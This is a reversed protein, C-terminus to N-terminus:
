WGETNAYLDLGGALAALWETAGAVCGTIRQVAPWHAAADDYMRRLLRYRQERDAVAQLRAVLGHLVVLHHDFTERPGPAPLGGLQRVLASNATGLRFAENPLLSGLLGRLTPRQYWGGGTADPDRPGYDAYSCVRQRQDWGSGVTAAGAAVAPLAALDGHSIHVPANESLARTSRCLGHVEEPVAPVPLTTATRVVSLFWGGPALADLAGVHADLDTGSAWFSTTGAISLWCDPDRRIAERALELALVSDNNLASHLLVTPGLHPVALTDQVAFVRGVHEELLSQDSLDGRGGAWLDYEDYFRFDGIGSMQLVHTMPDFWVDVGETQLVPVRSQISPKKGAGAHSEWPSAWPTVVAGSAVGAAVNEHIWAALNARPSDEILVTM